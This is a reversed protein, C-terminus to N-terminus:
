DEERIIFDYTARMEGGLPTEGELTETLVVEPLEVSEFNTQDKFDTLADEVDAVIRADLWEEDRIIYDNVRSALEKSGFLRVVEDILRMVKDRPFGAKVLFSLTLDLLLGIIVYQVRTTEKRGFHFHHYFEKM